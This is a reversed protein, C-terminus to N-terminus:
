RGADSTYPPRFEVVAALGIVGNREALAIFDGVPVLVAVAQALQHKDRREFIRADAGPEGIRPEVGDVFGVSGMRADIECSRFTSRYMGYRIARDDEFAPAASAAIGELDFVVVTKHGTIQM